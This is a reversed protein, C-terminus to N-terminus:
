STVFLCFTSTISSVASFITRLLKNCLQDLSMNEVFIDFIEEWSTIQGLSKDLHVQGNCSSGLKQMAGVIHEFTSRLAQQYAADKERYDHMDHESISDKKKDMASHFVGELLKVQFIVFTVINLVLDSRFTENTMGVINSLIM